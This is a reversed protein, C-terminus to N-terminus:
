QYSFLIKFFLLAQTHRRHIISMLQLTSSLCLQGYLIRFHENSVVYRLSTLTFPSHLSSNNKSTIIFLSLLYCCADTFHKKRLAKFWYSIGRLECVFFFLRKFLYILKFLFNTKWWILRKNYARLRVQYVCYLVYAKYQVYFDVWYFFVEVWYLPSILLLPICFLCFSFMFFYIGLRNQFSCSFPLLPLM